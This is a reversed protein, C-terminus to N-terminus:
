NEGYTRTGLQTYFHYTGNPAACKCTIGVSLARRDSPGVYFRGCGWVVTVYLLSRDDSLFIARYLALSKELAANSYQFSARGWKAGVGAGPRLLHADRGPELAHHEDPGGQHHEPPGGVHRRQRELGASARATM